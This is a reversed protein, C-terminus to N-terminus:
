DTKAVFEGLTNLEISTLKTTAICRFVLPYGLLEGEGESTLSLVGDAHIVGSEFAPMIFPSCLGIACLKSDDFEVSFVAVFEVSGYGDDGGDPKYNGYGVTGPDLSITIPGTSMIEGTKPNTLEIAGVEQEWKILTARERATDFAITYSGSLIPMEIVEGGLQPPFEVVYMNPGIEPDATAEARWLKAQFPAAGMLLCITSLMMFKASLRLM